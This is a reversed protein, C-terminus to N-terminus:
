FLGLMICILLIFGLFSLALLSGYIILLVLSFRTKYKARSIIALVWATVYCIIDATVALRHAAATSGSIDGNGSFVFFMIVPMGFMLILSIICLKNATKEM